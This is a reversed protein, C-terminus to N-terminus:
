PACFSALVPIIASLLCRIQQKETKEITLLMFYGTRHMISAKMMSLNSIRGIHRALILPKVLVYPLHAYVSLGPRYIPNSPLLSLLYNANAARPALPRSFDTGDGVSWDSKAHRLLILQRM